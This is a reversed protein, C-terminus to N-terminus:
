SPPTARWSVQRRMAVRPWQRLEGTDEEKRIDRLWTPLTPPELTEFGWRRYLAANWSVDRFTTLTVSELGRHRAQEVVHEVLRRGLGKGMWAPHVDLERLHLAGPREWCLAFGVFPANPEAIVWLLRQESATFIVEPQLGELDPPLGVEAYRQGALAELEGVRTLEDLRALRIEHAMAARARWRQEREGDGSESAVAARARWRQEREGGSSESAM